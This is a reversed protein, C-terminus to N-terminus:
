AQVERALRAAVAADAAADLAAYADPLPLDLRGSIRFCGREPEVAHRYKDAGADYYIPRRCDACREPESPEVDLAHLVDGGSWEAFAALTEPTLAFPFRLYVPDHYEGGDENILAVDGVETADAAQWEGDPTFMLYRHVGAATAALPIVVNQVNGGTNWEEAGVGVAALAGILDANELQEHM